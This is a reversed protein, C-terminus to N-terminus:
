GFKLSGEGTTDEGAATEDWEEGESGALLGDDDVFEEESEPIFGLLWDVQASSWPFLKESIYAKPQFAVM